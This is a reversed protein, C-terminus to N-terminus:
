EVVDVISVIGANRPSWGLSEPEAFGKQRRLGAQPLAVADQEVFFMFIVADHRSGECSDENKIVLFFSDIMIIQEKGKSNFWGGIV